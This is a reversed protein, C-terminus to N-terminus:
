TGEGALFARFMEPPGCFITRQRAFRVVWWEFGRHLCATKYIPEGLHPTRVRSCEGRENKEICDQIRSAPVFQQVIPDVWVHHRRAKSGRPTLSPRPKRGLHRSAM